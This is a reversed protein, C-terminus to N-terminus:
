SRYFREQQLTWENPIYDELVQFWGSPVNPDSSDSDDTDGTLCWSEIGNRHNTPLSYHPHRCPARPPPDSVSSASPYGAMVLNSWSHGSVPYRIHLVRNSFRQQLLRCTCCDVSIQRYRDASIQRYGGYWATYYRNRSGITGAFDREVSWAGREQESQKTKAESEREQIMRSVQLTKIAAYM